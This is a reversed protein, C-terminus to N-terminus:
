HQSVCGLLRRRGTSPSSHGALHRRRRLRRNNRQTRLLNLAESLRAELHTLRSAIVSLDMPLAVKAGNQPAAAGPGSLYERTAATPRVQATFRYGRGHETCILERDEGLAKRLAAIQVKLNQQAVVVDPWVRSQLEQKGVLAGDAGILVMLLEFARAGLEVPVGGALLRRQRPLVRFRGFELPADTAAPGARHAVIPSGDHDTPQGWPTAMALLSKMVNGRGLCIAGRNLLRQIRPLPSRNKFSRAAIPVPKRYRTSQRPDIELEAVRGNIAPRISSM